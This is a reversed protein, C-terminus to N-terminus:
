AFNTISTHLLINIKTYLLGQFFLIHSPIQFILAYNYRIKPANCGLFTIRIISFYLICKFLHFHIYYVIIKLKLNIYKFNYIQFKMEERNICLFTHFILWTIQISRKKIQQSIAQHNVSISWKEEFYSMCWRFTLNCNFPRVFIFVGVETTQTGGIWKRLDGIDRTSPFEDRKPLRSLPSKDQRWM